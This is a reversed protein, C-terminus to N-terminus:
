FHWIGSLTWLHVGDAIDFHEYEGRIAFPGVNFAVGGGFAAEEGNKNDKGFTGGEIFKAKVDASYSVFGAKAFLDVPGLPLQGVLEGTWASTNEAKAKVGVSNFKDTPTGLDLYALEFGLYEIFMYGALVKFSTDNSDFNVHGEGNGIRDQLTANGAGAGIYFGSKDDAHAQMAGLALGAALLGALGHDARIEM